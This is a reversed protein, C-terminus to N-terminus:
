NQAKTIDKSLIRIDRVVNKHEKGFYRAVTLSDTVAQNDKSIVLNM